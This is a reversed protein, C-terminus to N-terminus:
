LVGKTRIHELITDSQSKITAKYGMMTEKDSEMKVKMACVRHCLIDHDDMADSCM